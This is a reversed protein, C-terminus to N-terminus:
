WSHTCDETWRAYLYIQPSQRLKEICIYPLYHSSLCPLDVDKRLYVIWSIILFTIKMNITM